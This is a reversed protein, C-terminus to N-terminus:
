KRHLPSRPDQCAYRLVRDGVQPPPPLQQLYHCAEVQWIAPDQPHVQLRPHVQGVEDGACPALQHVRGAVKKSEQGANQHVSERRLRRVRWLSDARSLATLLVSCRPRARWRGRKRSAGGLLLAAPAHPARGGGAGGGSPAHACMRGMQMGSSWSHSARASPCSFFANTHKKIKKTKPPPMPIAHSEAPIAVLQQRLAPARQHCADHTAQINYHRGFNEAFAAACCHARRRSSRGGAGRLM